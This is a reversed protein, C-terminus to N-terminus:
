GELGARGSLSPGPRRRMGGDVITESMEPERQTSGLFFAAQISFLPPRTCMWRGLFLICLWIGLRSKRELVTRLGVVEDDGCDMVGGGIEVGAGYGRM